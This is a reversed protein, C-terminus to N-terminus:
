TSALTDKAALRRVLQERQAPADRPLLSTEITYAGAAEETCIKAIEAQGGDDPNIYWTLSPPGGDDNSCAALSATLVSRLSGRSRGEEGAIDWQAAGDM